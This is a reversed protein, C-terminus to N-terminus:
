RQKADSVNRVSRVFGCAHTAEFIGAHVCLDANLSYGM